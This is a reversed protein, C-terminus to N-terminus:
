CLGGPLSREVCGPSGRLGTEHVPYFSILEHPKHAKKLENLGLINNIWLNVPNKPNYLVPIISSRLDAQFWIVSPLHCCVAQFWIVSSLHCGSIPAESTMRRRRPSGDESFNVRRQRRWLRGPSRRSLDAPWPPCVASHAYCPISSHHFLISGNL